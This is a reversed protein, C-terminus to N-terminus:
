HPLGVRELFRRMRPDDLYARFVPDVALDVVWPDREAVARDLLTFVRQRDEVGAYAYALVAPTADPLAELTSIARDADQPRGAQGYVFALTAISYPEQPALSRAAEASRIADAIRGQLVYNQAVNSLAVPDGPALAIATLYAERALEFEGASCYLSALNGVMGPDFPDLDVARRAEAIAETQRNLDMLLWGLLSHVRAAGPNLAIATRYHVEAERFDWDFYHASFGLVYHAEASSSDIALARHALQKAEPVLSDRPAWNVYAQYGYVRGLEAYARAYRPDRAIAQRLLAAAQNAGARTYPRILQLGKLLLAHAEPDRTEERALRVGAGEGGLKLQLAGVIARAIEDQVAFVDAVERDYSDSWLHYGTAANILQATIRIRGGSRRVSGELVHGVRLAHAISDLPLRSGKYAFSSTRSVVRLEPLQSLVNLLEETMGDSFYEQEPDSSLNAFPLVAISGQEAAAPSSVVSATSAGGGRQPAGRAVLAVAAGAVVLIGALMFLEVGSVRQTGKEGHYWALVLAAFFGIALLVTAARLVLAPWAFPEALLSLVQLLLWAGALYALAWHGLKRRSLNAFFSRLVPASRRRLLMLGAARGRSLPAERTATPLLAASSAAGVLRDRSGVRTLIEKTRRLAFDEGAHRAAPRAVTATSGSTAAPPLSHPQEAIWPPAGRGDDLMVELGKRAEPLGNM